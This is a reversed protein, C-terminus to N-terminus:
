CLPTISYEVKYAALVCCLSLGINGRENIYHCSVEKRHRSVTFTGIPSPCTYSGALAKWGVTM